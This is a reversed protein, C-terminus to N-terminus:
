DVPYDGKLHIRRGETDIEGVFHKTFPVLLTSARLSEVELMSLDNGEVIGRVTGVKSEGKFVDCGSLDSAYYEEEGLPCAFRRDVWIEAGLIPKIRDLSEMGELQLRVDNSSVHVHQVRYRRLEEGIRLFVETLKKFHAREGSYSYVKFFGNLGHSRQIKGVAIRDM